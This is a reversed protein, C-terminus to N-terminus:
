KRRSNRRAFVSSTSQIHVCGAEVNGQNRANDNTIIHISHNIIHKIWGESIAKTKEWENM